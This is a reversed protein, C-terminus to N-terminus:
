IIREKPRLVYAPIILLILAIGNIAVNITFNILISIFSDYIAWTLLALLLLYYKSRSLHSLGSNVLIFFLVGWSAITPGFLAILGKITLIANYDANALLPNIASIYGDFGGIFVLIPMLVGICIHALAM